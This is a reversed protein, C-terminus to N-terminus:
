LQIQLFADHHARREAVFSSVSDGPPLIAILLSAVWMMSYFWGAGQTFGDLLIILM